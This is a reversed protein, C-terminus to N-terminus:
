KGYKIEVKKEGLAILVGDDTIDEVMWSSGNIYDGVNLTSYSNTKTEMVATYYGDSNRIIATIKANAVDVEDFVNDGEIEIDELDRVDQPLVDVNQAEGGVVPTTDIKPSKTSIIIVLAVLVSIAILIAPIIIKMKPNKDLFATLSSGGSKNTNKGSGSKLKAILDKIDMNMNM